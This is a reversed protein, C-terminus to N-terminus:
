ATARLRITFEVFKRFSTFSLKLLEAEGGSKRGSKEGVDRSPLPFYLLVITPLSLFFNDNPTKIADVLPFCDYLVDSPPDTSIAPFKQRKASQPPSFQNENIKRISLADRPEHHFNRHSDNPSNRSLVSCHIKLKDFARLKNDLPSQTSSLSGNRTQRSHISQRQQSTL